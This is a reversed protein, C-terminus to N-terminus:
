PPLRLGRHRGLKAAAASGAARVEVVPYTVSADGRQNALSVARRSIFAFSGEWDNWGLNAGSTVLSITEVISQGIDAVFMNGNAPDWSFRQPNRLGYAYIEAHTSPDGDNAFPNDAPIGYQGNASDSGLPDIRLIKGFASGLNQALNMPDGGSGGDASGVFLLGFEADGPSVLPNFGIQGGNHNRYPQEIRILERPPGGDYVAGGPNRTTWELLVTDHTVSDGASAFDPTPESDTTDIWTYLKGFGPAGMRDFQPHFAFGQFGQENRSAEVHVGWAPADLDLYQTVDQADYSVRYLLGRMDSVFLRGISPEDVLHMLRAPEGDSDPISVFEVIGVEITQHGAAIPTSFPDDTTQALAPASLALTVLVTPFVRLM